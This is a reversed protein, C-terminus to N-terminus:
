FFPSGGIEGFWEGWVMEQNHDFFHDPIQMQCALVAHQFVLMFFPDLKVKREFLGLLYGDVTELSLIDKPEESSVVSVDGPSSFSATYITPREVPQQRLVMDICGPEGLSTDPPHTM